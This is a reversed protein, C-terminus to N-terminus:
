ATLSPPPAPPASWIGFSNRIPPPPPRTFRRTQQLRRLRLLVQRGKNLNMSQCGFCGERRSFTYRSGDKSDPAFASTRQKGGQCGFTGQKRGIHIEALGDRCDIHWLSSKGRGHPLLTECTAQFDGMLLLVLAAIVVLKAPFGDMKM